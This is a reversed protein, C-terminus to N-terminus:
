DEAIYSGSRSSPEVHKQWPFGHTAATLYMTGRKRVLYRQQKARIIIGGMIPFDIGPTEGLNKHLGSM